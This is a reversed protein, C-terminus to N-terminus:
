SSIGPARGSSPGGATLATALQELDEPLPADFRLPRGQPGLPVTLRAAHLALRPPAVAAPLTPVGRGYLRDGLIPTGISRLHVRLQHQRGTEPELELRAVPLGGLLGTAEVRYRTRAARAGPEHPRAPRSKGRRAAHLPLDIVGAAPTPVGGTFAIYLKDVRHQEFALCLQRHTAADRALLLVGSTDRDLRHVVLVPAGLEREARHQVCRAPDEGRAPVVTLGPPKDLVAWADDVALWRLPADIAVM